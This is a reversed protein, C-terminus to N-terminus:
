ARVEERLAGLRASTLDIWRLDAEIHFLAHDCLLVTPLDSGIKRKTLDRM